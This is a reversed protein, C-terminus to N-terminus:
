LLVQNKSNNIQRLIQPGRLRILHQLPPCKPIAPGQAKVKSGSISSERGLYRDLFVCFKTSKPGFDRDLTSCKKTWPEPGSDLSELIGFSLPPPTMVGERHWQYSLSLFIRKQPVSSVDKQSPTIMNLVLVSSMQVPFCLLQGLWLNGIDHVSQWTMCHTM